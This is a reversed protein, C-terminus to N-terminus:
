PQAAGDGREAEQSKPPNCWEDVLQSAAETNAITEEATKYIYEGEANKVRIRRGANDSYFRLREQAIECNKDRIEQDKAAKESIVTAKTAAEKAKVLAERAAHLAEVNEVRSKGGKLEHEQVNVGIPPVDTFYVNGEADEYQYLKAQASSFLLVLLIAICFKIM